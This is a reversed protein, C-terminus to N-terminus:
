GSIARQYTERERKNSRRASIIRRVSAGDGRGRETYVVTLHIDDSLGIAVIRREQYDKRLDDAELTPGEFVLTAFEFDFGRDRLNADSKEPDWEFIMLYVNTYVADLVSLGPRKPHCHPHQTPSGM